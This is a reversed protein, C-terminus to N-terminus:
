DKCKLRKEFVYVWDGFCYKERYQEYASYADLKQTICQDVDKVLATNEEEPEFWM